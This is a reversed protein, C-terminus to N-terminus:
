DCRFLGVSYTVHNFQVFFKTVHYHFSVNFLNSCIFIHIDNSIIFPNSIAFKLHTFTRLSVKPESKSPEPPNGRAPIMQPISGFHADSTSGNGIRTVDFRIGSIFCKASMLEILPTSISGTSTIVNPDCHVSTDSAPFRYPT